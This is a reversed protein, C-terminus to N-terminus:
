TKKYHGSTFGANNQAGRLGLHVCTTQPGKEHSNTLGEVLMMIVPLEGVHYFFVIRVNITYVGEWSSDGRCCDASALCISRKDLSSIVSLLDISFVSKLLNEFLNPGSNLLGKAKYLTSLIWM